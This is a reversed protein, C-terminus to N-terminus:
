LPGSPLQLGLTIQFFLWCGVLGIATAVVAILPGVRGISVLMVIALLAFSIYAGLHEFVLPVGLLASATILVDRHGIEITEGQASFWGQMAIILAVTIMLAGLLLPAFGPGPSPITGVELLLAQWVFFAGVGVLMGAVLVGGRRSNFALPVSLRARLKPQRLLVLQRGKARLLRRDTEAVAWRRSSDSERLREHVASM